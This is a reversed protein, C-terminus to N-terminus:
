YQNRDPVEFLIVAIAGGRVIDKIVQFLDLRLAVVQIEAPDHVILSRWHVFEPIFEDPVVRVGEARIQRIIDACQSLDGVAEGAPQPGYILRHQLLCGVSGAPHGQGVHLM